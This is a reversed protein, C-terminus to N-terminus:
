RYLQHQQIYDIVPDPTLYRLSHGQATATRLASASIALQTIPLIFIHGSPAQSLAQPDACLRRALETQLQAPLRASWDETESFGPRHAVALHALGTLEKWRHWDPLGAFADAGLFLTLPTDPGLEQRLETLSDVMFSPTTRVLERRDLLFGPHNAIALGVMACRQEPSAGPLDRHPPHGAPMFRVQHLGLAQSMEEALRLHGYHIPDFTGGLLGVPQTVPSPHHTL